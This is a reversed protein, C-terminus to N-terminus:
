PKVNRVFWFLVWMKINNHILILTPHFIDFFKATIAQIYLDDYIILLERNM